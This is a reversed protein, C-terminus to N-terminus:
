SAAWRKLNQDWQEEILLNIEKTSDAYAKLSETRLLDDVIQTLMDTVILLNEKDNDHYRITAWDLEAWRDFLNPKSQYKELFAM